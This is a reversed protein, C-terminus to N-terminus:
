QRPQQRKKGPLFKKQPPITSIVPFMGYKDKANNLIWKLNETTSSPSFLSGGVDNTGFMVLCYYGDVYQFDTDMRDVGKQSTDANVGLNVTYTEGYNETLYESSKYWYTLEPHYEGPLNNMRM